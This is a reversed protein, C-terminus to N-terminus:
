MDIYLESNMNLQIALYGIFIVILWSDVCSHIHTYLEHIHEHDAVTMHIRGFTHMSYMYIHM